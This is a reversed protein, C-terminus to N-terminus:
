YDQPCEEEGGEKEFLQVINRVTMLFFGIPIAAYVYAMKIKLGLSIQGMMYFDRTYIWGLYTIYATFIILIVTGIKKVVGRAKEPFIKLLVDVRIHAKKKFGYSAGMYVLWVFLYRAMEESWSNSNNFCFRMVVQITLVVLMLLLLVACFVEEFRDAIKKLM